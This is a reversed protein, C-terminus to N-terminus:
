ERSRTFAHAMGGSEGGSKDQRDARRRDPGLVSEGVGGDAAAECRRDGHAAVRARCEATQRLRGARRAGIRLFEAAQRHAQLIESQLALPIFDLPWDIQGLGLRAARRAKLKRGLGGDGNQGIGRAKREADILPEYAALFDPRGANQRFLDEINRVPNQPWADVHHAQAGLLAVADSISSM